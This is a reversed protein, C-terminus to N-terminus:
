NHLEKKKLFNKAEVANFNNSDLEKNNAYKNAISIVYKPPLTKEGYKLYYEKSLRNNPIDNENIVDIAKLIDEKTINKPISM